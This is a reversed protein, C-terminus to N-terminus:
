TEDMKDEEFTEVFHFAISLSWDHYLFVSLNPCGVQGSPLRHVGWRIDHYIYRLARVM